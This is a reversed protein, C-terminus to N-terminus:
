FRYRNIVTLIREDSMKSLKTLLIRMVEKVQGISIPKKKGEELAIEKALDNLNLKDNENM